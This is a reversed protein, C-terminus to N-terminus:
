KIQNSKKTQKNKFPLQSMQFRNQQVQCFNTVLRIRYASTLIVVSYSSFSFRYGSQDRDKELGVM